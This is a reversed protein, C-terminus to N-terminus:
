LSRLFDLALGHVRPPDLIAGWHGEFPIEVYRSGRIADAVERAHDPPMLLDREFAIVLTPADIRALTAPDARYGAYARWQGIRGPDEWPPFAAMEELFPVVRADDTLRTPTYMQGSLMGVIFENNIEAGTEFLQIAGRHFIDLWGPHRTLTAILVCAEVLDPRIAALEQAILSGMSYGVVTCRRIGLADLLGAADDVLDGLTFPEEPCASPPLGRNDFRIVRYGADLYPQMHEETWWTRPMGRGAVMLLPRGEGVEDYTLQIGNVDIEPV